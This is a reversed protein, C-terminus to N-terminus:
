NGARILAPAGHGFQAPRKDTHHRRAVIKAGLLLRRRSDAAVRGSARAPAPFSSEDKAAIRRQRVTYNSAIPPLDDADLMREPPGARLRNAIAVTCTRSPATTASRGSSHWREATIRCHKTLASKTIPACAASGPRMRSPPEIAGEGRNDGRDLREVMRPRPRSTQDANQAQRSQDGSFLVRKRSEGAHADRTKSTEREGTFLPRGAWLGGDDRGVIM